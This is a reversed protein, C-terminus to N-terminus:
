RGPRQSPDIMPTWAIVSGAEPESAKLRAENASRRPSPKASLPDFVKTVLAGRASTNRMKAEVSRDLPNEAMEANRTSRVVGPRDVPGGMWFIPSRVEGMLSTYRSSQWTGMSFTRPGSPAPMAMKLEEISHSRLQM